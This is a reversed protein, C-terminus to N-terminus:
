GDREEKYVRDNIREHTQEKGNVQKGSKWNNRQEM